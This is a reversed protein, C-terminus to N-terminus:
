DKLLMLGLTMLQETMLGLTMLRETRTGKTVNVVIKQMFIQFLVIVNQCSKISFRSYKFYKFTFTFKKVNQTLACKLCKQKRLTWMFKTIM